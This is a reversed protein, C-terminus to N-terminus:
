IAATNLSSYLVLANFTPKIISGDGGKMGGTCKLRVWFDLVIHTLSDQDYRQVKLWGKVPPTSLPNFQATNAELQQGRYFCQAALRSMENCTFELELGQETQVVDKTVIVGSGPLPGKIKQENDDVMKDEFSEVNGIAYTTWLTDAAGPKSTNSVTGNAPVTFAKGSPAFFLFDGLALAKPTAIM